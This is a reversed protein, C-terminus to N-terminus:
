RFVRPRVANIDYVKNSDQILKKPNEAAKIQTTLLHCLKGAAVGVRAKERKVVLSDCWRMQATKRKIQVLKKLPSLVVFASYRVCVDRCGGTFSPACDDPM